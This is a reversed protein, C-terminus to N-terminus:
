RQSQRLRSRLSRLLTLLAILQMASWLLAAFTAISDHPAVDLNIAILAIFILTARVPREAITVLGIESEGLGAARARLYEQLFAFLWASFVIQWPAGILYLGLAWCSEVIRDIVSDLVAGFKSTKEGIIAVTGDIGDIVLTLVLYLISIPAPTWYLFLAAFILASSSLLNANIFALRSGVIYSITLWAKVIGAIKAGGHIESWRNFYDERTM